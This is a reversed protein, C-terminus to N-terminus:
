CDGDNYIGVLYDHFKEEMYNEVEDRIEIM